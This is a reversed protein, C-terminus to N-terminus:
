FRFINRSENGRTPTATTAPNKYKDGTFWEPFVTASANMNLYKVAKFLYNQGDRDAADMKISMLNDTAPQRDTEFADKDTGRMATVTFGTDSIRVPLTEIAHKISLYAESKKLMDMVFLEDDTPAAKDKLTQLYDGLSQTLYMDEVLAIVPRLAQFTRLPQYLSYYENFETGTKILFKHYQKYAASNAWTTFEDKNDELFELLQEMGTLAKDELAAKVENFEWRFAAPMEATTIRAVGRDTITAHILGIDDLYAFAALPKQITKILQQQLESGNGAEYIGTIETVIEKGIAPIIHKTQSQDIDPLSMDDDLSSIRLVSKIEQITKILAM